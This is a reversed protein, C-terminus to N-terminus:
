DGCQAQPLAVCIDGTNHLWSVHEWLGRGRGQSPQSVSGVEGVSFISLPVIENVLCAWIKKMDNRLRCLLVEM